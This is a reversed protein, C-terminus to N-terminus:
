SHCLWAVAQLKDCSLHQQRYMTVGQSVCIDVDEAITAGRNKERECVSMSVYM